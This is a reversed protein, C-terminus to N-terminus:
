RRPISLTSTIAGAETLYWHFVSISFNVSREACTISPDTAAAARSTHRGWLEEGEGAVFEHEFVDSVHLLQTRVQDDEVLRLADAVPGGGGGAGDFLQLAAVGQHKGARREFVFQFLQKGNDLEDIAAPQARREAEHVLVAHHVFVAAQGAIAAQILM